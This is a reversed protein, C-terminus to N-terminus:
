KWILYSKSTPKRFITQVGSFERSGKVQDCNSDLWTRTLNLVYPRFKSETEPDGLFLKIGTCFKM